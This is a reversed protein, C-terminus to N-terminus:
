SGSISNHALQKAVIQSRTLTTTTDILVPVENLGAARAARTRHHGSVIEIDGNPRLVCFPLSELRDGNKINAVLRQFAQPSMTRANKDQEQLDDVGVRWVEMGNGLVALVEVRARPSVPANRAQSVM